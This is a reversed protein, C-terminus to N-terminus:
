AGTSSGSSMTMRRTFATLECRGRGPQRVQLTFPGAGSGSYLLRSTLSHPERRETAVRFGRMWSPRDGKLITMMSAKCAVGEFNTQAPEQKGLWNPVSWDAKM